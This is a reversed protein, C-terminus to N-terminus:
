KGETKVEEKPKEEKAKKAESYTPVKKEQWIRVWAKGRPIGIESLIKAIEVNEINAKLQEAAMKQLEAKSPTAGGDYDITLIIEKRKLLPNEKETLIQVKM